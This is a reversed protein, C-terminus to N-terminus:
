SIQTFLHYVGAQRSKVGALVVGLTHSETLAVPVHTMKLASLDSPLPDQDSVELAYIRGKGTCHLTHTHTTPTLTQWAIHPLVALLIVIVTQLVLTLMPCLTHVGDVTVCTDALITEPLVFFCM